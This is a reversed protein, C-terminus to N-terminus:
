LWAAVHCGSPHLMADCSLPVPVGCTVVLEVLLPSKFFSFNMATFGYATKPLAKFVSIYWDIWFYLLVIGM